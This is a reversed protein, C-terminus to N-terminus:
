EGFFGKVQSEIVRTAGLNAPTSSPINRVTGGFRTTSGLSLKPYRGTMFGRISPVSLSPRRTIDFEGVKGRFARNAVAQYFEDKSAYKDIIERQFKAPDFGRAAGSKKLSWLMEAGSIMDRNKVAQNSFVLNLNSQINTSKPYATKLMKTIEDSADSVTKAAQATIKEDGINDMYRYVANSYDDISSRLKRELVKGPTSPTTLVISQYLNAGVEDTTSKLARSGIQTLERLGRPTQAIRNVASSGSNALHPYRVNVLEIIDDEVQQVARRSLGSKTLTRMIGVATETAGTLLAVMMPRAVYREIMDRGEAGGALEQGLLYSTGGVTASLAPKILGTMKTALKGTGGLGLTMALKEPTNIQEALFQGVKEGERRGRQRIQETPMSPEQKFKSTLINWLRDLPSAQEGIEGITRKLGPIIGMKMPGIGESMLAEFGSRLKQQQSGMPLITFGKEIEGTERYKQIVDAFKDRSHGKGTTSYAVADGKGPGIMFPYEIFGAM